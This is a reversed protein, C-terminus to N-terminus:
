AEVTQDNIVKEMADVVIQLRDISVRTHDSTCGSANVMIDAGKKTNFQPDSEALRKRWQQGLKDRAAVFRRVLDQKRALAQEKFTLGEM